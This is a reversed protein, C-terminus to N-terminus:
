VALGHVGSQEVMFVISRNLVLLVQQMKLTMPLLVAASYGSDSVTAVHDYSNIYTFNVTTRLISSDYAGSSTTADADLPTMTLYARTTVSGRTGGSTYGSATDASASISM